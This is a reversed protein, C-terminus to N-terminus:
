LINLWALRNSPCPVIICCPFEGNRSSTFEMAGREWLTTVVQAVSSEKKGIAVYVFIVNQDQQNLIMDTKGTQRDRIILERQGLRTSIM